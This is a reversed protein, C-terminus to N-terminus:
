WLCCRGLNHRLNLWHGVEHTATRGKDYGSSLNGIRGFANNEVVIGDTDPKLSYESPFQAYGLYPFGLDCVWINLYKSTPWAKKGGQSTYKIGIAFEDFSKDPNVHDGPYFTAATTLTRTIGNTANGNPDICALRFEFNVDSAVSQFVSPTNTQDANLRRFDENLVDIQSQIQAVSLNGGTGIPNGNDLIHVVVPIIITANPGNLINESSNEKVSKIYNQTHAELAMFKNYSEKNTNQLQQINIELGCKQTQANCFISFTLAFCLLKLKYM